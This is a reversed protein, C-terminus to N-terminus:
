QLDDLLHEAVGADDGGGVTGNLTRGSVAWRAACAVASMIMSAARLMAPDRSPADPHGVDQALGDRRGVAPHSNACNLLRHCLTELLVARSTRDDAPSGARSGSIGWRHGM